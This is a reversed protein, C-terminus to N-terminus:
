SLSLYTTIASNFSVQESWTAAPVVIVNADAEDNTALDISGVWQFKISQLCIIPKYRIDIIM